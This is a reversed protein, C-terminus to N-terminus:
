AHIDRNSFMACQAFLVLLTLASHHSVGNRAHAFQIQISIQMNRSAFIIVVEPMDRNSFMACQAFLVLLTLASHHSVGNRAHAFQIQISIQMNRSAFIIVVEPM